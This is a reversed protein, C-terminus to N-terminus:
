SSARGLTLSEVIHQNTHESISDTSTRHSDMVRDVKVLHMQMAARATAQDHFRIMRYLELHSEIEEVPDTFPWYLDLQAARSLSRLVHLLRYLVRNGAVEALVTHFDWTLDYLDNEADGTKLLREFRSLITEMAQWSRDERTCALAAVECELIRRTAQVERWDSELLLLGALDRRIASELGVSRVFTGQGKRSEVIGLAQLASLAERVSPRSVELQRALQNESPLRDGPRLDRAILSMLQDAVQQSVSDTTM